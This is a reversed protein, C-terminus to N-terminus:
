DGTPLCAMACPAQGEGSMREVTRNKFYSRHFGNGTTRGLSQLIHRVHAAKQLTEFPDLLVDSGAATGLFDLLLMPLPLWRARACRRSGSRRRSTSPIRGTLEVILGNIEAPEGVPGAREAIGTNRGSGFLPM